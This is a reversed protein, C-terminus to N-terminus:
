SKMKGEASRDGVKSDFSSLSEVKRKVNEGEVRKEEEEELGMKTETGWHVFSVLRTKGFGVNVAWAKTQTKSDKTQVLKLGTPCKLHGPVCNNKTIRGCRTWWFFRYQSLQTAGDRKAGVGIATGFKPGGVRGELM